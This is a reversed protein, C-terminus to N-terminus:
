KVTVRCKVSKKGSKVTITTKGKKKAIIKGKATVVATKKDSTKYTVKQTSAAPSLSPRLTKSAGKKLTLKKPVGSIKKTAVSAKKVTVNVTKKLGSALTITIVAKGTKKMATIKGGSKVTVIKPNSSKWTAVSDGTALGIVKLATSSQGAKLTLSKVSLKITPTLKKGVTRTKIKGCTACTQQETRPAFVTAKRKVTWAGFRHAHVKEPDLDKAESIKMEGLDTKKTGNDVSVSILASPNTAEAGVTKGDKISFKVENQKIIGSFSAAVFKKGSAANGQLIVKGNAGKESDITCTVDQPNVTITSVNDTSAYLYQTKGALLLETGDADCTFPNEPFNVNISSLKGDKMNIDLIEVSDAVYTIEGNKVTLWQQGDAGKIHCNMLKDNVFNKISATVTDNPWLSLYGTFFNDPLKSVDYFKISEVEFGFYYHSSQASIDSASIDSLEWRGTATNVWLYSKSTAYVSSPFALHELGSHKTIYPTNPDYVPIRYWDGDRVIENHSTDLAIAHMYGSIDSLTILLPTTNGSRVYEILGKYHTDMSFVQTARFERSSQSIHARDILKLLSKNGHITYFEQEGYGDLNRKHNYGYANLGDGTKSFYGSLDVKGCYNAAALLSLGFCRGDSEEANFIYQLVDTAAQGNSTVIAYITSSTTVDYVDCYLAAPFHKDGGYYDSNNVFCWGDRGASFGTVTRDALDLQAYKLGNEIAYNEVCSEDINDFGYLGTPAAFAGAGIAKVDEHVIARQLANCGAFAEQGIKTVGDPIYVRKLSVCNKFAGDKIEKLNKKQSFDIWNLAKCDKFCEVGLETLSDSLKLKKLSTCNCFAREGISEQFRPWQIETLSTCGYFAEKGIELSSAASMDVSQIRGAYGFAREGIRKVAGRVTVKKLAGWANFANAGINQLGGNPGNGIDLSEVTSRKSYWPVDTVNDEMEGQGELRLLHSDTIQWCIYDLDGWYNTYASSVTPWKERRCYVVATVGDFADYGITKPKEGQFWVRKVNGCGVFAHKGIKEVEDEIVIKHIGSREEYWPADEAMEFEQAEESWAKITLVGAKLEWEIGDPLWEITEAGYPEKRNVIGVWTINGAPYYAKLNNDLFADEGIQPADGKFYVRQLSECTDFASAGMKTLTKPFVVKVLQSCGTFAAEGITKLGKGLKLEKLAACNDFAYDEIATVSDPLIVSTLSSCEDFASVGIVSVSEGLTLSRINEDFYFADMGITRVQNGIVVATINECGWFAGDGISTVGDTVHVSTISDRIKEWPYTSYDEEYDYEYNYMPGAGSIYMSGDARLNWSVNAGCLGSTANYAEQAVQQNETNEVPAVHDPTEKEQVAGAREEEMQAQNVSINETQVFDAPEGEMQGDVVPQDEAQADDASSDWADTVEVENAQSMEAAFNEASAYIVGQFIMVGAMVVALVRKKM